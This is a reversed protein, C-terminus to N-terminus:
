KGGTSPTPETSPGAPAEEPQPEGKIFAALGPNPEGGADLRSREGVALAMRLMNASGRQADEFGQGLYFGQVPRIVDRAIGDLLKNLELRDEWALGRLAVTGFKQGMWHLLRKEGRNLHEDLQKEVYDSKTMTRPEVRLVDDYEDEDYPRSM